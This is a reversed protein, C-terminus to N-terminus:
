DLKNALMLRRVENVHIAFATNPAESSIFSLIGILEGNDNFVGGGSNGKWIPSSLQVIEGLTPQHYFWSSGRLASVHGTVYTWYFGIPHGVVHVSEGRVVTNALKASSHQPTAGVTQVLAIDNKIDSDLFVGQHVQGAVEAFHGVAQAEVVYEFIATETTLPVESSSTDNLFKIRGSICHWATLIVTQSVWVGTCFPARDGDMDLMVFAVTKDDLDDIISPTRATLERNTVCGCMMVILLLLAYIKKM